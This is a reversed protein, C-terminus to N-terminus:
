SVRVSQRGRPLRPPRGTRRSTGYGPTMLVLPDIAYSFWRATAGGNYTGNVVRRRKPLTFCRYYTPTGVPLVQVNSLRWSGNLNGMGSFGSITLNSIPNPPPPSGIDVDIVPSAPTAGAPSGTQGTWVALVNRPGFPTRIRFGYNVVADAFIGAGFFDGTLCSLFIGFNAPFSGAGLYRGGANIIEQPIGRFDRSKAIGGATNCAVVLADYPQEDQASGPYVGAAQAPPIFVHAGRRSLGGSISWQSVRIASVSWGPTLILRRVQAVALASETAAADEKAALEYWAETWGAKSGSTAVVGPTAEFEFQIRHSSAM